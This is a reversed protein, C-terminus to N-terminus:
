FIFSNKRIYFADGWEPHFYTFTVIRIFGHKMLFEDVQWALACNEYLEEFNVELQIADIFKLTNEAGELALLEAGQIDIVLLNYDEPTIILEEILSDLKRSPVKVQKEETIDPYLDLHRKLKLLSSSQDNTTVHLTLFDNKNSIAYNLAKVGPYEGVNKYLKEFVEPNAEIFLINKVGMELYTNLESGEHAGIHIIGKPRVSNKECLKKLDLIATNEGTLVDKFRENAVFFNAYLYDEDGPLFEAMHELGTYLIKFIVYRFRQLFTFVDKLKIGSNLYSPGYEFHIFNIKGTALLSKMGQLIDMESGEVAIKLYDIHNINRERCYNDLTKTLVEIKVPEGIDFDKEDSFRRYFSSWGPVDPYYYFEKTEESNGIAYNNALFSGQYQYDSLNKLLINFNQKLPEFLHVKIGPKIDMVAKTWNGTNSGIEFVTDGAIVFDNILNIEGSDTIKETLSPTYIKSESKMETSAYIDGWLFNNNENIIRLVLEKDSIWDQLAFVETEGISYNFYQYGLSVLHELCKKTTKFFEVAFEFSIFPITTSLGKLVNYEYGEVDIKCFKPTGYISIIEDLTVVEVPVINDWSNNRFRGSKWEESFTSLVNYSSCVSLNLIDKKDSLGKGVVTINKNEKFKNKLFTICDPQPEFCIVRAGYKIFQDAKDGINAGVDFVLDDPNLITKLFSNKQV